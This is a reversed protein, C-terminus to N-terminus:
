GRKIRTVDGLFVKLENKPTVILYVYLTKLDKEMYVKPAIEPNTQLPFVYYNQYITIKKRYMSSGDPLVKAFEWGSLDKVDKAFIPTFELEYEVRNVPNKSQQYLNRFYTGMKKMKVVEGNRGSSTLMRCNAYDYFLKPVKTSIIKQKEEDSIKNKTGVKEVYDCFTNIKTNIHSALTVPDAGNIGYNNTVQAQAVVTALLLALLPLLFRNFHM